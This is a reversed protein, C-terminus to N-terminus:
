QRTIEPCDKPKNTKGNYIIANSSEKAKTTRKLLHKTAYVHSTTARKAKREANYVKLNRLNQTFQYKDFM